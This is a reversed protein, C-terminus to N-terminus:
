RSQAKAPSTTKACVAHTRRSAAMGDGSRQPASFWALKLPSNYAVDYRRTKWGMPTPMRGGKAELPECSQSIGMRDSARQSSECAFGDVAGGGAAACCRKRTKVALSPWRRLNETGSRRASAASLTARATWARAKERAGSANARACKEPSMSSERAADAAAGGSAGFSKSSPGRASPSSEDPADDGGPEGDPEGDPESGGGNGRRGASRAASANLRRARAKGTM